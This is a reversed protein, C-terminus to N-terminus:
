GAAPLDRRAAALWGLIAAFIISLPRSVGTFSGTTEAVALGILGAFVGLSVARIEALPHRRSLAFATAIGSVMIAVYAVAGLLGLKLWWWLFVVHTYERGGELEVPLPHTAQWPVGLGLGTVPHARIEAVVNRAEDLRYRDYRQAEVRTPSLSTVREVVSSELDPVSTVALALRAAVVFVVLAAVLIRRGRFGSGLLLLLLVGVAGAIWFNRRFSLIFALLCIPTAAYVWWPFQVRTAVAALLVLLFVLLLFNPAPAYFTLTTEGVTRGAGLFWSVLGELGKEVSLAAAVVVFLWLDRRDELVNVVVIPLLVIVALSRVSNITALSEGGEVHGTAIGAVMALSLLALPLTFPQPLRPARGKRVLDAAAAVLVGIFLLDSLSPRGNYFAARFGLFGEPDIECLVALGVFLGLLLAPRVLLFVGALAGLPLLAPVPGAIVLALATAGALAAAGAIFGGRAALSM